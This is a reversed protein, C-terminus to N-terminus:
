VIFVSVDVHHGNLFAAVTAAAALTATGAVAVAPSPMLKSIANGAQRMGAESASWRAAGGFTEAAGLARRASDGGVTTYAASSEDMPRGLQFVEGAATRICWREAEARSGSFAADKDSIITARVSGDTVGAIGHLDGEYCGSSVEVWNELAPPNEPWPHPGPGQLGLWRARLEEPSRSSLEPVDLAIRRWLVLRGAQLSYHPVADELAWEERPEWSLRVHPSRRQAFSRAHLKTNLGVKMLLAAKGATQREFPHKGCAAAGNALTTAGALPSWAVAAPMLILSALWRALGRSSGNRHRPHSARSAGSAM